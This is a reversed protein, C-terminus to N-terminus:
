TGGEDLDPSLVMRYVGEQWHAMWISGDQDQMSCASVVDGGEVRNKVRTTGRPLRNSYSFGTM